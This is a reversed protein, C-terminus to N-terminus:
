PGVEKLGLETAYKALGSETARRYTFTKGREGESDVLSAARLEALARDMVSLGTLRHEVGIPARQPSLSAPM